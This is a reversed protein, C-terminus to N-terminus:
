YHNSVLTVTAANAGEVFRMRLADKNVEFTTTFINTGVRPKANIDWFFRNNHPILHCCSAILLQDGAFYLVLFQGECLVASFCRPDSDIQGSQVPDNGIETCQATSLLCRVHLQGVTTAAARQVYYNVAVANFGLTFARPAGALMGGLWFALGYFGVVASAM